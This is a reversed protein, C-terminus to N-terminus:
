RLLNDGVFYWVTFVNLGLYSLVSNYVTEPSFRRRVRLVSLLRFDRDM